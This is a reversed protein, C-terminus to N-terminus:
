PAENRAPGWPFQGSFNIHQRLAETLAKYQKHHTPLPHQEQPDDDLNVLTMPEFPTNQFLKWPGRRVAYYVRGGYKMGGERRVWFMTRDFSAQKGTLLLPAFSRGDILTPAEAGAIECLTPMLDMTMVRFTDNVGPTITGPWTVSTCVKIGGEWMEQKAGTLAGNNGGVNTQGGNDSTFVVLTDKELGQAKLEALVQGIGHDCHEVLAVLRARKDSIGPERQKVKEFWDQPPQIPTHPANYSLFLFFPQDPNRRERLYDISWQTFLDTAHGPPDIIEENLAMYNIGHRRHKYYDDMMDGLWGHFFDFGRDTPRDPASLGLHWKGVLATQYGAKKLAQPLTVFDPILKGWSDKQYTRIVGPVGVLDPYRGSIFSARTPSCVPCNAYFENIRLGRAMLADISPSKLDTAGYSSLDGYGLDDVMIVLINPKDSSTPKDAAFAFGSLSILILSIWKKMPPVYRILM